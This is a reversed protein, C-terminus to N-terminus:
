STVRLALDAIRQECDFAEALEGGFRVAEGPEM